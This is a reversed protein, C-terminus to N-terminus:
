DTSRARGFRPLLGVGFCAMLALGICSVIAAYRLSSPQFAFQVRHEGPQVLCGMFDGNVRLIERPKGEVMAHWGPHYRESVVLLQPTPCEVWIEM